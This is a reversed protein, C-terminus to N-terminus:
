QKVEPFAARVAAIIEEHKMTCLDLMEFYRDGIQAYIHTMRGSFCESMKFSNCNKGHQWDEPPLVELAYTFQEETIESPPTRILAESKRRVDDLEGVEAGPYRVRLQELTDHSYLGVLVGDDRRHAEDVIGPRGPVYFVPRNM